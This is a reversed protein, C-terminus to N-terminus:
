DVGSGIPKPKFNYEMSLLPWSAFLLAAALLVPATKWQWVLFIIVIIVVAALLRLSLLRRPTVGRWFGPPTEEVCELGDYYDYQETANQPARPQWGRYDPEVGSKKEMLHVLAIKATMIPDDNTVNTLPNVTGHEYEVEIGRALDELTFNHEAMNIGLTDIANKAEAMYDRAAM